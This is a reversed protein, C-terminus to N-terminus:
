RRKKKKSKKKAPKADKPLTIKDGPHIMDGKLNPNAKRLQSVTVGNKKAIKELNDGSSVTYTSPKSAKKKSKKSSSKKSSKSASAKQKDAAPASLEAPSSADALDGANEDPILIKLQQGTRVANRRLSNWEKIDAQEVGYNNAISALTEGATVKHTITRTGRASAASKVMALDQEEQALSPAPEEEQAFDTEATSALDGPEVTERIAYKEADHAIIEEESLLYAHVQQSPLILFYTHDATAPIIDKRFQPNLIRLEEVPINLIESIQNFHLRSRVAVTDTILPKTALVPSINHEKYYNMVYNAAIFGPVYGRTEEPLFKYISWFDHTKADGGARRLAKNVVGPGCNYAAIALSWDGYVAYLDKLYGAAKESSLYPDRREDVLSNVELGLGKGTGLTLQWLGAAGHKSVANPDLGSEIVPLYKLELPLGLEELAQEFIPTYYTSLGLISAVQARSRQTYRDIYSRVIQNFPLEVVTPLAALRRRITEDSTKEDPLSAYHDDTTTYNKIYWSELMKRTNQEFTEPYVITEDTITEKLNLVNPNDAMSSPPLM